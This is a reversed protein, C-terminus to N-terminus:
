QHNLRVIKREQPLNTSTVNLKNQPEADGGGLEAIFAKTSTGGNTVIKHQNSTVPIIIRPQLTTITDQLLYPNFNSDDTEPPLPIILIQPKGLKDQQDTSLKQNLNGIHCISIGEVKIAFITNLEKNGDEDEVGTAIGNIYIHKIEYEGPGSLLKPDGTLIPANSHKPDDNSTTVIDAKHPNMFTGNSNDFPDTVLIIDRSNIAVSSHGLWTIEM